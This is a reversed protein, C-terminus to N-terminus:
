TNRPFDKKIATKNKRKYIFSVLFAPILFGSWTFIFISTTGLIFDTSSMILFVLIFSWRWGLYASALLMAVTVLEINPGLDFLTRELFALLFLTIAFVIRM